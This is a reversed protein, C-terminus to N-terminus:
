KIIKGEKKNLDKTLLVDVDSQSNTLGTEASGYVWLEFNKVGSDVLTTKLDALIGEVDQILVGVRHHLKIEEAQADYSDGICCLQSKIAGIFFIFINIVHEIM